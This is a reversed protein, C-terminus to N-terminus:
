DAPPAELTIVQGDRHKEIWGEHRLVKDYSSGDLVIALSIGLESVRLDEREAAEALRSARREEYPMFPTEPM